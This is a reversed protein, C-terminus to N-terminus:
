CAYQKEEKRLNILIELHDTWRSLYILKASPFKEWDQICEEIQEDSLAQKFNGLSGSGDDYATEIAGYGPREYYRFVWKGNKDLKPKKTARDKVLTTWSRFGCMFCFRRDEMTRTQFCSYLLDYKCQPCTEFTDVTAMM